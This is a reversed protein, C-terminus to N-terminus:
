VTLEDTNEKKDINQYIIVPLKKESVLQVDYPQNVLVSQKLIYEVAENGPKKISISSVINKDLSIKANTVITCLGLIAVFLLRINM